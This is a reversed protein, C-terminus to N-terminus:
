PDGTSAKTLLRINLPMHYNVFLVSLFFLVADCGCSIDISPRRRCTQTTNWPASLTGSISKKCWPTWSSSEMWWSSRSSSITCNRSRHKTMKRKAPASFSWCGLCIGVAVFFPTYISRHNSHSYRIAALYEFVSVKLCTRAGSSMEFLAPRSCEFM